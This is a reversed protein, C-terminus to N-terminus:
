ASMTTFEFDGTKWLVLAHTMAQSALVADARTEFPLHEESGDSGKLIMTCNHSDPHTYWGFAPNRLSFPVFKGLCVSIVVGLLTKENYIVTCVHRDGSFGGLERVPSPEDGVFEMIHRAVDRAM